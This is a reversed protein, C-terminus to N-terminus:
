SGCSLVESAVYDAVRGPVGVVEPMCRDRLQCERCRADNPADPLLGSAIFSRVTRVAEVARGRLSSDIPVLIRRRPGAYWLAGQAVVCGLMEELCLAQLALQLHAADGHRTGIKYEVPVISGDHHFEVADARGSVGLTESWLPMGRVVLAGRERRAAFTDARRHGHAGRITHENDLWEGDVHILACQRPCYAHHEIASIAIVQRESM